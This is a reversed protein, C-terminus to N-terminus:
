STAVNDEKPKNKIQRVIKSGLAYTSFLAIPYKLASIVEKLLPLDIDFGPKFAKITILTMMSFFFLLSVFLYTRAQSPRYQGDSGREKLIHMM